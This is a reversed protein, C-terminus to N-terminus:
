GSNENYIRGYHNGDPNGNEDIIDGGWYNRESLAKWYDGIPKHAATDTRYQGDVFLNLDIALRLKHDSYPNGYGRRDGREGFVRPDRYADGLTCAYGPMAAIHLLLCGVHYAFEQQAESLKM